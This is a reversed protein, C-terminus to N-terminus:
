ALLGSRRNTPTKRPARVPGHSFGQAKQRIADAHHSADDHEPTNDWTALRTNWRRKYNELHGLGEKTTAENFRWTAFDTRMLDIGHQITAVRPVIHWDWSPRLQRLQSVISTPQEISQVLHSADHPLYMGGVSVGMQDVWQIFPLFGESSSSRHGIWDFFPGNTQGLWLVTDDSAGIDWFGYVPHGPRHPFQGVRGEARAKAIVHHLYKGDNGSKWCEESTSPYERWMLSPEHAFEEDRKAVYWARQEMEITCGMEDEVSDFYEHDALSITIAAADEPSLSYAPDMWWAFFHYRYDQPTLLKRARKKNEARRALEYFAGEQGEATSEIFALGDQPVAQLSGTTLERAKDPYKAAIKGMESVHLFHVTGSRASTVVRISSGNHHFILQSQTEKELTFLSRLADPLRDYAFRIKDRFLEEASNLDHAIIVVNQEANWLAHDLAMVCLLTSFGLQRAKLIINRNHLNKLLRRQSVNPRFPVVLGASDEDEDDASKAKIKYLAGSTIRWMYDKALRELAALLEAETCGDLDIDDLDPSIPADLM